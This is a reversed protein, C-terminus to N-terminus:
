IKLSSHLHYIREVTQSGTVM